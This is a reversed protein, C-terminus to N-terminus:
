LKSMRREPKGSFGHLSIDYLSPSEECSLLVDARTAESILSINKNWCGARENSNAHSSHDEMAIRHGGVRLPTCDLLRPLMLTKLSSAAMQYALNNLALMVEQSAPRPHCTDLVYM